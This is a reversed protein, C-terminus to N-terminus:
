GAPPDVPPIPALRSVAERLAEAVSRCGDPDAPTTGFGLAEGIRVAVPRPLPRRREAPWAAFAGEIRCPVVPVDSGAVLRGIGPKFPALRGDRARTGEPFLIYICGEEVLRARLEDIEQVGARRRSLPLADLLLATAAARRTTEFFHDAAALPLARRRLRSPLAAALVLADLHSTHNAVMVFPPEQPLNERGAIRLRHWLRLYGRLMAGAARALAWEVLGAERRASRLREAAPLGHDRAPRYRWPEM